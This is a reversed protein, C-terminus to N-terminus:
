GVGLNGSTVGNLEDPTRYLCLIVGMRVCLLLNTHVFIPLICTLCRSWLFKAAPPGFALILVLILYEHRTKLGSSLRNSDSLM